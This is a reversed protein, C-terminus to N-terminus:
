EDKSSKSESEDKKPPLRKEIRRINDLWLCGFTGSVGAGVVAALIPLLVMPEEAQRMLIAVAGVALGSLMPIVYVFVSALMKLIAWALRSVSYILFAAAVAM